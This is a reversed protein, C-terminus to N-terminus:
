PTPGEPANTWTTVVRNDGRDLTVTWPGSRFSQSKSRLDGLSRDDAFLRWLTIWAGAFQSADEASDWATEWVFWWKGSENGYIAYVDGDWGAAADTAVGMGLHEEFVIRIGFEGMTNLERREFGAPPEPLAPAGPFESLLALSTPADRDDFYKEFHMTQESSRPPDLFLRDRWGPGRRVAEELLLEGQIYPFLLQQQFCYPTAKFASQDMFLAQPLEKMMDPTAYDIAYENMLRTADGEAVTIVALSRDDDEPTEYGMKKLGFRYDQLAHCIEHALIIQALQSSAIDYGRKVFLRKSDDDYIGGVQEDLLSVLMEMVDLDEPILRVSVLLAEIAERREPPYQEEYSAVVLQRLTDSDLYCSEVTHPMRIGRLTEVRDQVERIIRLTEEDQIPQAALSSEGKPALDDNASSAYLGGAVVLAAAFALIRVLATALNPRNPFRENM